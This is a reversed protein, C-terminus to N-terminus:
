EWVRNCSIADGRLVAMVEDGVYWANRLQVLLRGDDANRYPYISPDVNVKKGDWQFMPVLDLATLPQDHIHNLWTIFTEADPSNLLNTISNLVTTHNRPVWVYSKVMDNFLMTNAKRKANRVMAATTTSHNRTCEVCMGNSSYRSSNHGARCPRGTNYFPAAAHLAENRTTHQATSDM